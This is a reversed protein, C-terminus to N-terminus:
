LSDAMVFFKSCEEWLQGPGTNQIEIMLKPDKEVVSINVGELLPHYSIGLPKHHCLRGSIRYRYSSRCTKKLGRWMSIM